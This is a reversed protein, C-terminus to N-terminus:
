PCSTLEVGISARRKGDTFCGNVWLGKYSGNPGVLQGFGNPKGDRWEGEYRNGNPFVATGRGNLKGDHWEGEDREAPEGNQVWQVTGWGQAIGNKCPGSWTITENPNPSADWVRCGTRVDTIWGAKPTQGWAPLAFSMAFALLYLISRASGM